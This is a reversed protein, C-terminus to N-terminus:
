WVHFFGIPDAVGTGIYAKLYLSFSFINKSVEEIKHSQCLNYTRGKSVELSVKEGALKSIGYKNIPNTPADVSYPPAKGDFVYDTSIYIVFAGVSASVSM